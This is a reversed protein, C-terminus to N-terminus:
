DKLISSRLKMNEQLWNSVVKADDVSAFEDIRVRIRNEYQHPVIATSLHGLNIEVLRSVIEFAAERGFVYNTEVVVRPVRESVLELRVPREQVEGFGLKLAAAQSLDILNQTFFPGRDVVEVVVSIDNDQNTVRVYSPIPLYPHAAVMAHNEFPAGTIATHDDYQEDRRRATGDAIYGDVDHWVRYARDDVRYVGNGLRALPRQSPVADPFWVPTATPVIERPETDVVVPASACSVVFLCGVALGGVTRIM